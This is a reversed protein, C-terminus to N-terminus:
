SMDIIQRLPSGPPPLRKGQAKHWLHIAQTRPTALDEIKLGPEFLLSTCLYHVPYFVDIPQAKDTLGLERICGTLLRPGWVGWPMRSVSVGLGLARLAHLGYMQHRRLGDPIYYETQTEAVLMKALPSDSPYSLFAGNIRRADERGFMYAEAQIPRLCYMDCDAYIGMGARLLRYRYRNTGLSVSGTARNVLLDSRPMIQTADYVEAGEPLDSPPDYCHLVVRHGHRLFSRICAAHVAGLQPGDWFMNITPSTAKMKMSEM